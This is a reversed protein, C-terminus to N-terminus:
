FASPAPESAQRRRLTGILGALAVVAGAAFVVWLLVLLYDTLADYFAGALEPSKSRSRLQDMALSRYLLLLLMAVVLGTGAILLMRARRTGIAVGAVLLGIAAIPFVVSFNELTNFAPIARRVSPRSFLEMSVEIEGIRDVLPVGEESLWRKIEDLVVGLDLVVTDDEIRLSGGTEERLMALVRPHALRNVTSWANRFAESDVAKTVATSVPKRLSEPLEREGPGLQGLKRSIADTVRTAIEQRVVADDAVPGVAELYEDEHALQRELAHAAVAPGALVCGLVILITAIVNRSVEFGYGVLHQSTDYVRCTAPPYGVPALM